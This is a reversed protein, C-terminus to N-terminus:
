TLVAIAADNSAVPLVADAPMGAALAEPAIWTHARQGCAILLDAVEAVRRGVQRHGEAEYSGLELMDGLVAIKRGAMESLLNLAAFVSAPSANYTDDILQTGNIGPVAVLRLQADGAQLGELLEQWDMGLHLGVAMSALATHVSHRGILPLKMHVAEGQYHACFGIGQLGCSEIQDAWLDAASDLGYYFVRAATDDAMARVRQDDINLFAVGGAPLARPLEGKAHAIAEMSGMRELHSPGVNTVIGLQPRALDGQKAIKGPAWMGMELVAVDHDPQLQLLSLPLTAENNYSRPNKLTGFRHHLLAATLEKTSTKGVSGTIGVVTAQSGKRKHRAAQHLAALPEGVEILVPRETDIPGDTLATADVLQAAGVLAQGQRLVWGRRVLAGRAGRELAQAVFEHGDVRAGPLAVFLAGPEALRSDIVAEDFAFEHSGAPLTHGDSLGQLLEALTFV